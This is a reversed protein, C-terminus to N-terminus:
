SVYKLPLGCISPVPAPADDQRALQEKEFVGAEPDHVGNNLDIVHQPLM